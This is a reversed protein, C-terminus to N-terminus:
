SQLTLTESCSGEDSQCSASIQNTAANCTIQCYHDEEDFIELGDAEATDLVTIDFTVDGNGPFNSVSVSDEGVASLTFTEIGCGAVESSYTGLPCAFGVSPSATAEVSSSAGESSESSAESSSAESSAESSSADESSTSESSSSGTEPASTGSVVDDSGDTISVFYTGDPQRVIMVDLPADGSPNLVLQDPNTEGPFTIDVLVEGPINNRDGSITFMGNPDTVDMDGLASVTAGQVPDGTMELERLLSSGPAPAAQMLTGNFIVDGSGGGGCNTLALTLAVVVLTGLLTRM